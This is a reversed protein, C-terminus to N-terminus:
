IYYKFHLNDIDLVNILRRLLSTNRPCWTDQYDPLVCVASELSVEPLGPSYAPPIAGGCITLFSM